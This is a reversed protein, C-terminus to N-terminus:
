RQELLGKQVDGPQPLPLAELSIGVVANEAAKVDIGVRQVVPVLHPYRKLALGAYYRSFQGAGTRLKDPCTSELYALDAADSGKARIAAARLKGKFIYVEDLISTPRDGLKEGRVQLVKPVVPQM